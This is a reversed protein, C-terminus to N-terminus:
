EENMAAYDIRFRAPSSFRFEFNRGPRQIIGLSRFVTETNYAGKDGLSMLMYDSWTAGQDDSWRLELIPEFGYTPSWGANVRVYVEACPIPSGTHSVQGTVELIRPGVDDEVGEELKWIRGDDKDGAYPIDQEMIGLHGRFNVSEYNDWRSWGPKTLNFVLTQEDTTLVFFDHRNQRFTWARIDTADKLLEEVSENSIKSVSGQALVVSRTQTVWILCPANNFVASVTSAKSLCGDSYVRGSIRQFPADNDGTATWVEPATTGLFWIEDSVINISSIADPVREASAFNLPDPNTQGPEIWYFKQTGQISLLFFSNITAVSEVPQNDPIVVETVTAGDTSYLVGERAILLRSDTGAFQCVETGPIAGVPTIVETVPNYRYLSVDSVIMWDGGFTNDQRWFGKIPGDGITTMLKLTPRSVRSVGDPSAPNNILYMNHLRLRQVNESASEWDDMGLPIVPM